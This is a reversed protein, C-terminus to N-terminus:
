LMSSFLMKISVKLQSNAGKFFCFSLFVATDIKIFLALAVITVIPSSPFPVGVSFTFLQLVGHTRNTSQHKNQKENPKLGLSLLVQLLYFSQSFFHLFNCIFRSSFFVNIFLQYHTHCRLVCKTNRLPM